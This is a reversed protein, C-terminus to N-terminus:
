KAKISLAKNILILNARDAAKFLKEPSSVRSKRKEDNHYFAFTNFYAQYFSDKFKFNHKALIFNKLLSLEYRDFAKLENQKLVKDYFLNYFTRELQYNLKIRFFCGKLSDTSSSIVNWSKRGNEYIPYSINIKRELVRGILNFDRNVVFADQTYPRSSTHTKDVKYDYYFHYPIYGVSDYVDFYINRIDISFSDIRVGPLKKLNDRPEAILPEFHSFPLKSIKGTVTDIIYYICDFSGDSENYGTKILIKTGTSFSFIAGIGVPYETGINDKYREDVSKAYDFIVKNTNKQPDYLNVLYRKSGAIFNDGILNSISISDQNFIVEIKFKGTHKNVEILRMPSHTCFFIDGNISIIGDPLLGSSDFGEPLFLSDTKLDNKFSYLYLKRGKSKKEGLKYDIGIWLDDSIFRPMRDKKNVFEYYSEIDQSFTCQTFLVCCLIFLTSNITKM